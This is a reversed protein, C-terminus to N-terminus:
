RACFAEEKGGGGVEDEAGPEVVVAVAGAAPVEERVTVGDAVQGVDQFIEASLDNVCDLPRAASSAVAGHLFFIYRLHWTSPIRLESYMELRKNRTEPAHLCTCPHTTPSEPYETNPKQAISTLPSQEEHGERSRYAFLQKAALTLSLFLNRSKTESADGIHKPRGKHHGPRM